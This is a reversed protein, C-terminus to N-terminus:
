RMLRIWLPKRESGFTKLVQITESVLRVDRQMKEGVGEYMCMCALFASAQLRELICITSVFAALSLHSVTQKFKCDSSIGDLKGLTLFWLSTDFRRM